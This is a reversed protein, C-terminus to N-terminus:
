NEQNTLRDYLGKSIQSLSTIICEDVKHNYVKTLNNSLENHLWTADCGPSLKVCSNATVKSGGDLKAEVVVVAYYNQKKSM